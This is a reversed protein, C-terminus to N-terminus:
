QRPPLDSEFLTGPAFADRGYNGECVICVPVQRFPPPIDRPRVASTFKVKSADGGLQQVVRDEACLGGGSCAAAVGRSEANYGATVTAPRRFGRFRGMEAAVRDRALEAERILNLDFGANIEIQTLKIEFDVINAELNLLESEGGSVIMLSDLAASRAVDKPPADNAM